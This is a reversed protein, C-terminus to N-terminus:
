VQAGDDKDEATRSGLVCELHWQDADEEAEERSNFNLLPRGLVRNTEIEDWKKKMAGAALTPFDECMGHHDELDRAHLLICNLLTENIDRWALGPPVCLRSGRRALEMDVWLFPKGRYIKDVGSEGEKNCLFVMQVRWWWDQGIGPLFAGKCKIKLRDSLRKAKLKCRCVSWVEEVQTQELLEAV